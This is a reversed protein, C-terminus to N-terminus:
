FSNRPSKEMEIIKNEMDELIKINEDELRKYLNLRCEAAVQIKPKKSKPTTVSVWSIKKNKYYLDFDVLRKGELTYELSLLIRKIDIPNTFTFLRIQYTMVSYLMVAYDKTWSEGLIMGVELTSLVYMLREYHDKYKGRSDYINIRLEYWQSDDLSQTIIRLGELRLKDKVIRAPQHILLHKNKINTVSGSLEENTFSIITDNKEGIGIGDILNVAKGNFISTLRDLIVNEDGPIRMIISTPGADVKHLLYSKQNNLISALIASSGDNVLVIKKSDEIYTKENHIDTLFCISSYEDAIKMGEKLSVIQGNLNEVLFEALEDIVESRLFLYRPAMRFLLMLDVGM